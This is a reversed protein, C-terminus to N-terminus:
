FVRLTVVTLAFILLTALSISIIITEFGSESRASTSSVPLLNYENTGAVFDPIKGNLTGSQVNARGISNKQLLLGAASVFGQNFVSFDYLTTAAAQGKASKIQYLFYHNNPALGIIKILSANISTDRRADFDFLGHNLAISGTNGQNLAYLHGGTLVLSNQSDINSLNGEVQQWSDGKTYIYSHGGSTKGLLYEAGEALRNTKGSVLAFNIGTTMINQSQCISTNTANTAVAQINFTAEPNNYAAINITQSSSVGAPLALQKHITVTPEIHAWVDVTVTNNSEPLITNYATLNKSVLSNEVNTLNVLNASGDKSVTQTPYSEGLTGWDLVAPLQDISNTELQQGNIAMSDIILNASPKLQLNSGNAELWSKSITLQYHIKQGYEVTYQNLNDKMKESLNVIKFSLANGTNVTDIAIKKSNSKIDVLKVFGTTNSSISTLGTSLTGSAQGKNNTYTKLPSGPMHLRVTNRLIYSVGTGPTGNLMQVQNVYGAGLLFSLITEAQAESNKVNKGISLGNPFTIIGEKESFEQGLQAWVNSELDKSTFSGNKIKDAISQFNSATFAQNVTPTGASTFTIEVNVNSDASVLKSFVFVSFFLVAFCLSTKIFKVIERNKLLMQRRNIKM